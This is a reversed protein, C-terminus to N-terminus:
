KYKAKFAFSYETSTPNGKGTFTGVLSHGKQGGTGKTLSIKGNTVTASTASSAHIDASVHGALSGTKTWFTLSKSDFHVVGGPKIAITTTFTLAGNGLVKDKFSGAEYHLKGKLSTEGIEATGKDTRTASKAGVASVSIGGVAVAVLMGTAVRRTTMLGRM